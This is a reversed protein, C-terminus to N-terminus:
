LPDSAFTGSNGALSSQNFESGRRNLLTSKLQTSKTEKRLSQSMNNCLNYEHEGQDPIDRSCTYSRSQLNKEFNNVILSMSVRLRKLALVIEQDECNISPIENYVGQFNHESNYHSSM